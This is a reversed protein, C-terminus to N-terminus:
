LFRQLRQRLAGLVADRQPKTIAGSILAVAIYASVAVPAAAYPSTRDKLVLAVGAMAAGSLLTLAITRLVSRDLIGRPVLAIGGIVVLSESVVAAVCLGIGGNGTREQFWPVLVPDLVVSVIVCLLQIISWARQKGAALVATGIPMTFYVLFLFVAMVRLNSEAPGFGKEGFVSIGIEPFFRADLRQPRQM